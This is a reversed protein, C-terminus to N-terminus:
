EPCNGILRGNAIIRLIIIIYGIVIFKNSAPLILPFFKSVLARAATIHKKNLICLKM